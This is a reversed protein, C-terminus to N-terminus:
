AWDAGQEGARAESLTTAHSQFSARRKLADADADSGDSTATAASAGTDQRMLTARLDRSLRVHSLGRELETQAVCAASHKPPGGPADRGRGAVRLNWRNAGVVAWVLEVELRHQM